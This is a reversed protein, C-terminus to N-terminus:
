GQQFTPRFCNKFLHSKTKFSIRVSKWLPYLLTM